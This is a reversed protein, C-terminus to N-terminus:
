LYAVIMLSIILRLSMKLVSMVFKNTWYSFKINQISKMILM